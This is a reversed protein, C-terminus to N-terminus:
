PRLETGAHPNQFCIRGSRNELVGRRKFHCHRNGDRAPAGVMSEAAGRTQLGDDRVSTTRASVGSQLGECWHCWDRKRVDNSVDNVDAARAVM